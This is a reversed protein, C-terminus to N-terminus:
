PNQEHTGEDGAFEAHSYCLTPSPPTLYSVDAFLKAPRRRDEGCAMATGALTLLHDCAFDQDRNSPLLDPAAISVCQHLV